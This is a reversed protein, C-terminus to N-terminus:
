GGKRERLRQKMLVERGGNAQACPAASASDWNVSDHTWKSTNVIFLWAMCKSNDSHLWDLTPFMLWRDWFHRFLFCFLYRHGRLFFPLQHPYLHVTYWGDNPRFLCTNIRRVCLSLQRSGLKIRAFDFGDITCHANNRLAAPHLIGENVAM